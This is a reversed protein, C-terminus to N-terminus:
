QPRYASSDSTYHFVSGSKRNRTQADAIVRTESDVLYVTTIVPDGFRVTWLKHRSDRAPGIVTLTDYEVARDVESFLPVVFTLGARYDLSRVLLEVENFAFVPEPFTHDYHQPASDPYQILGTVHRGAYQFSRMVGRFSLEESIPSLARRDVFVSDRSDFPPSWRFALVARGSQGPAPHESRTVHSIRREATDLPQRSFVSLEFVAPEMSPPHLLPSGPLLM